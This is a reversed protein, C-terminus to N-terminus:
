VLMMKIVGAQGPCGSSYTWRFIQDWRHMHGVKCDMCSEETIACPVFGKQESNNSLQFAECQNLNPVIARGKKGYEVPGNDALNSPSIAKFIFPSGSHSGSLSRHNDLIVLSCDHHYRLNRSHRQFKTQCNTIVSSFTCGAFYFIALQCRIRRRNTVVILKLFRRNHPRFNSM